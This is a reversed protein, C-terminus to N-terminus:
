HMLYQMPPMGVFQVFREHLASRSLGARRGLAELTWAAAPEAHMLALARGVHRDRLGALWGAAGDPLADLHRRAADVFVMESVRELVADSGPRRERSETVAQRLVGGVWDGVGGAPLHVLRPMAAILPNFPRLDCGIFGCVVVTHAEDAPMAAGPELVGRHYSVAIPKPDRATTYVWDDNSPGARLGPASSMVHADGRPFMVIDGAALAVPPQGATAAWGAGKVLMHYELVHEAGPMVADAIEIAAPAEAVWEAGYSVYYFIAGRLRVSRLVDSLPDAQASRGSLDSPTM